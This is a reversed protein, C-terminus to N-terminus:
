QPQLAKPKKAVAQRIHSRTPLSKAAEVSPSLPSPPVTLLRSIVVLRQPAPGANYAPDCTILTLRNDKTPAVVSLDDPKVIRFEEVAYTLTQGDREVLIHDGHKLSMVKRLFTERHASIVTNGLDGPLATGTMHGPGIMLSLPDTGEVIVASVDIAPITLRSLSSDRISVTAPHRRTRDAGQQAQWLAQLHRQELIMVGYQLGVFGLIAVGSFLLVPALRRRFRALKSRTRSPPHLSM